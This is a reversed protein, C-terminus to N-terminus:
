AWHERSPKDLHHDVTLPNYMDEELGSIAVVFKRHRIFVMVKTKLIGQYRCIEDVDDGIRWESELVRTELGVRVAL